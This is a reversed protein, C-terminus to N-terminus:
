APARNGARWRHDNLVDAVIRVHPEDLLTYHRGGPVSTVTVPGSTLEGWGWDPRADHPYGAFESVTGAGARVLAVGTSVPRGRYARCASVVQSFVAFPEALVAATMGTTDAGGERAIALAAALRETAPVAALAAAMSAAAQGARFGAICDELFWVCLEGDSVPQPAVPAPADLILLGAAATGSDELQRAMELAIVAGSSWGGLLYHGDPRAERLAALYRAAIDALPLDPQAGAQPGGAQPGGAQFAYCPGDTLTALQRYCLVNGGAPHVLFWAPGDGAGRLTVLPSSSPGTTDLWAALAAVTRRELLVGLPVRRGLRQEALVTMRLAAFSQGGLDFFDDTVGVAAVGLVEQWIAALAQEAPNRPAVHEGRDQRSVESSALGQRDLKGNSTLPLWALVTITAPVLHGPLRAAVFERLGAPDADPDDLTVFAALQRGSGASRAVVVAQGVAPHARLAHEIEGPEVRYGQIKLQADARGLFEIDGGPLYRGLDGTRYLRMGTGPHAVFAAATRDPDNLYGLALGAGGIYLEGTVWDPVDRGCADSIHWSQGSLPRGYPISAWGPEDHDVPFCISWISAETAGGLSVVRANPALARVRAPLGVPIWDGSLLVLRLAPLTVGGAECEDAMLEMLAPASNWITVARDRVLDLWAAPDPEGPGPLVLAAGARLAGFIDYVSLDFCLSSVGFLVDAATVAFRANVDAITNVPGGHNLMVGKPVGTSGSTYIVYALGDKAQAQASGPPRGAAATRQGAAPAEGDERQDLGIALVPAGLRSLEARLAPSTVIAAGGADRLLYRLREAPWDPDAPLYAGGALLVALVAAVQEWGKPLAVMAVDGPRLGAARLRAALATAEDNLEGFTLTRTDSIVAPRGSAAAAHRALPDHLRGGADPPAAAPVPMRLQRQGAPLLQPARAQWSEDAAALAGLLDIFAHQMDDILGAPFMDDILDWVVWLSQDGQEWFQCDLLVQPTELASFAPRDLHGMFLGSGIVFPCAAQGARRRHQNLAQLVRVGSWHVHSLDALVQRGLRAARAAFPEDPRWDVELPYLAAFNGIIEGIQPHMPLRHTVMNNLLFHRSGSWYAIVEAYSAYIATTPTLGHGTARSKLSAWAPAPLVFDHRSMRSRKRRDAGPVLPVPPSDPLAPIRDRWYAQAERGLQSDELESLARLADKYSLELEPLPESPHGYYHEISKLLRSMGAGDIFFNNHNYHLRGRGDGYRTIEAELWPWRDLPLESRQLRARVRDIHARVQGEPANRLDTVKIHLATIDAVPELLMDERLVVLSARHRRLAQNLAREFREPDLEAFDFEMYQHPRVHFELGGRSGVLYSVQLDSPAFPDASEGAPVILPLGARADPRLDAAALWALLGPKGDSIRERLDAPLGGRPATVRLQGDGAMRLTIGREALETLLAPIVAAGGDALGPEV